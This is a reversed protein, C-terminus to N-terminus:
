QLNGRKIYCIIGWTINVMLAGIAWGILFSYPEM